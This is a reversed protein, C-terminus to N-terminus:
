DGSLTGTHAEARRLPIQLTFQARGTSLDFSLHTKQLECLQRLLVLSAARVSSRLDDIRENDSQNWAVSLAEFTGKEHPEGECQIAVEAHASGSHRLIACISGNKLCDVLTGVMLLVCRVTHEIYMPGVVADTDLKSEINFTHKKLPHPRHLETLRSVLEAVRCTALHLHPDTRLHEFRVLGDIQCIDILGVIFRLLNDGESWIRAVTTQQDITLPGDIEALMLESFGLISNLPSKLEHSVHTLFSTKQQDAKSRQVTADAIRQRQNKFHIVAREFGDYIEDTESFGVVIPLSVSTRSLRMEQIGARVTELDATIDTTLSRVYYTSLWLLILLSIVGLWHESSTEADNHTGGQSAGQGIQAPPAMIHPAHPAPTIPRYMRNLATMQEVYQAQSLETQKGHDSYTVLLLACASTVLPVQIAFMLRMRINQRILNPPRSVSPNSDVRRLARRVVLYFWVIPIVALLYVLVGATVAASVSRGLSTQAGGMMAALLVAAAVCLRALKIPFDHARRQQETISLDALLGTNTPRAYWTMLVAIAIITVAYVIQWETPLALAPLATEFVWWFITGSLAVMLFIFGQLDTQIRRM